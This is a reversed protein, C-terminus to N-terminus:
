YAPRSNKPDDPCDFSRHGTKKCVFCTNCNRAIHGEQGCKFCSNPGPVGPQGIQPCAAAQHGPQNCRYCLRPPPAYGGGRNGYFGHQPPGHQPPQYYPDNNFPHQGPGPGNPCDRGQHGFAGCRFCMGRPITNPCRAKIHGKGHCLHCEPINNMYRSGEMSSCMEQIHGEGGCRYCMNKKRKYADGDDDAGRKEAVPSDRAASSTSASAAEASSLSSSTANSGSKETTESSTEESNKKGDEAGEVQSAAAPKQTVYYIRNGWKESPPSLVGDKCRIIRTVNSEEFVYKLGLATGFTSELTAVLINGNEETPVEMVEGGEERCVKVFETM